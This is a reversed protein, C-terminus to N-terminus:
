LVSQLTQLYVVEQKKLVRWNLVHYQLSYCFVVIYKRKRVNREKLSDCNRKHVLDNNRLRLLFDIFRFYECSLVLCEFSLFCIKLPWQILIFVIMWFITVSCILPSIPITRKLHSIRINCICWDIMSQCFSLSFFHAFNDRVFFWVIQPCNHDPKITM